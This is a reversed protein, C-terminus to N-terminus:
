LLRRFKNKPSKAIRVKAPRLVAEGLLYGRQLEDVVVGDEHEDTEVQGLVEHREFDYPLGKAEIVRVGEAEFLKTFESFIMELGKALEDASGGPAAVQDHAALLVDYLSLLKLILEKKGHRIFEPKERDARKRFNEFDAKMRILQDLLKGNEEELRAVDARLAAQAEGEPPSAEGETVPVEASEKADM